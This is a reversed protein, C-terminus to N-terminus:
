NGEWTNSKTNEQHRTTKTTFFRREGSRRIPRQAHRRVTIARDPTQASEGRGRATECLAPRAPCERTARRHPNTGQCPGRPRVAASHRPRSALDAAWVFRRENLRQRGRHFRRSRAVSANIPRQSRQLSVDDIIPWGCHRCNLKLKQDNGQAQSAGNAHGRSSEGKRAFRGATLRLPDIQKSPNTKAYQDRGQRQKQRDRRAPRPV